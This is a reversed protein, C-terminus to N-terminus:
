HVIVSQSVRESRGQARNMRQESERGYIVSNGPVTVSQHEQKSGFRDGSVRRGVTFGSTGVAPLLRTQIGPGSKGQVASQMGCLLTLARPPSIRSPVAGMHLSCRSTLAVAQRVYAQQRASVALGKWCRFSLIGNPILGPWPNSEVKVSRAAVPAVGPARFRNGSPRRQSPAGTRGDENRRSTGM